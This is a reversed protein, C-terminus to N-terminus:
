AKNNMVLEILKGNEKALDILEETIMSGENILINGSASTITKTALRGKLYQKQRQEFLNVPNSATGNAAKGSAKDAKTNQNAANDSVNENNGSIHENVDNKDGDTAAISDQSAMDTPKVAELSESQENAFSAAIEKGSTESEEMSAKDTKYITEITEANNAVSTEDNRHAVAAKLDSARDLLTSEVNEKVIVLNKGFTLVSDRPIIRIKKQTIDAIYELGVITCNDDEDVYIDGIEGMLRGKQTLVKTGKVQINQQLLDIAAPIKSLDNIAEENEITLAYEGIGLVKDTPIIKAGLIQIGSDVVVYDASGKKANIIINKVRGVELGDSISIIPLGLIEQTKKM